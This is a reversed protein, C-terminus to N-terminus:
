KSDSVNKDKPISNVQANASSMPRSQAIWSVVDAVETPTLGNPHKPMPQNWAPSGLAARGYVVASWLGQNSILKLYM